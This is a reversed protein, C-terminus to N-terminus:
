SHIRTIIGLLVNTFFQKITKGFESRYINKTLAKQQQKMWRAYVGDFNPLYTERFTLIRDMLALLENEKVKHRTPYHELYYLQALMRDYEILDSGTLKLRTAQKLIKSKNANFIQENGIAQRVRALFEKKGRIKKHMLQRKLSETVQQIESRSTPTNKAALDEQLRNLNQETLVFIERKRHRRDQFLAKRLKPHLPTM